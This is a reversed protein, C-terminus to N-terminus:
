KEAIRLISYSASRLTVFFLLYKILKGMKSSEALFLKISLSMRSVVVEQIPTSYENTQSEIESAVFWANLQAIVASLLLNM